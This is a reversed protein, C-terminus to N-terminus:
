ENLNKELWIIDFAVAAPFPDNRVLRAGRHGEEVAVPFDYGL